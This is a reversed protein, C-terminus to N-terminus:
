HKHETTIHDFKKYGLVDSLLDCIILCTDSESIDRQKAQELIPQYKKLQTAIRAEIKASVAMVAGETKKGIGINGLSADL